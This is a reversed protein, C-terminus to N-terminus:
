SVNYTLKLHDPIGTILQVVFGLVYGLLIGAKISIDFVTNLQGRQQTPAVESIFVPAVVFSVGVGIGTNIRGILLWEYNIAFSMIFTGVVFIWSCVKLTTKRGRKDAVKGGVLAGFAAMFNLSGM